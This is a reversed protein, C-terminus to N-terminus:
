RGAAELANAKNYLEAPNESKQAEATISPAVLLAFALSVAITVKRM